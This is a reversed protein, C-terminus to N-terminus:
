PDRQGREERGEEEQVRREEPTAGAEERRDQGPGGTQQPASIRAREGEGPERDGQKIQQPKPVEQARQAEQRDEHQGRGRDETQGLVAPRPRLGGSSGAVSGLDLVLGHDFFNM